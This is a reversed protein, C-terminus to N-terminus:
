TLLLPVIVGEMDNKAILIYALVVAFTLAAFRVVIMNVVVRRRKYLPPADVALKTQSTALGVSIGIFVFVLIARDLRMFDTGEIILPMYCMFLTCIRYIVRMERVTRQTAVNSREVFRCVMHMIVVNLVVLAILAAKTYLSIHENYFYAVKNSPILHEVASFITSGLITGILTIITCLITLTRVSGLFCFVMVVYLVCTVHMSTAILVFVIFWPIGRIGRAVLFALAIVVFALGLTQRLQVISVLMPYVMLLSWVTASDKTLRLLVCEYIALVAFILVTKFTDFDISLGNGIRMLTQFGVGYDPFLFYSDLGEYASRYQEADADMQSHAAIWTILAIPILDFWRGGVRTQGLLVTLLYTVLRV